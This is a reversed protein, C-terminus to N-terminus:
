AVVVARSDIDYGRVAGAGFSLAGNLFAGSGCAPDVVLDSTGPQVLSVCLEVVYRPTFFQGKQGKSTRTMLTEFLADLAEASKCLEFPALLERCRARVAPQLASNEVDGCVAMVAPERTEEFLKLAVLKCAEDFVDAGSDALILEEMRLFLSHFDKPHESM